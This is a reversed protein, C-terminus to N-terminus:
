NEKNTSDAPPLTTARLYAEDLSPTVIRLQDALIGRGSLAALVTQPAAADGTVTFRGNEVTVSSIGPLGALVTPDLDASPM